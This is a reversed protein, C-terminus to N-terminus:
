EMVGADQNLRPVVKECVTVYLIIHKQGCVRLGCCLCVSEACPQNIFASLASRKAVPNSASDSTVLPIESKVGYACACFLMASM